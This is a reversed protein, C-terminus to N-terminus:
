APPMPTSDDAPDMPEDSTESVADLDFFTRLRQWRRPARRLGPLSFAVRSISGWREYVVSNAVFTASMLRGIFFFYGLTAMTVAMTGLTDTTRAIREPLYIQMVWQLVAFGLGMLAAGPLLAGPDSTARPLALQVLFWGVLVAGVVALWVALAIPVGGVDSMTNFMVSAALMAFVVGSLGVVERLGVKASAAPMQWAATSCTAWVRALSRGAWLTLFVGSVTIWLSHVVSLDHYNVALEGTVVSSEFSGGLYSELQVLNVLGLLTVNAPVVFLFLRLGIASGLVSAFADRDRAYLRTALHVVGEDAEREAVWTTARTSAATVKQKTSGVLKM